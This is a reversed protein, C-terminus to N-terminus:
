TVLLSEATARRRRRRTRRTRRAERAGASRPGPGRRRLRPADRRVDEIADRLVDEVETTRLDARRRTTRSPAWEVQLLDRAILYADAVETDYDEALRMVREQEELADTIRRNEARHREEEAALAARLRDHEEIADTYTSM